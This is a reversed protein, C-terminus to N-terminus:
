KGGGESTDSGEQESTSLGGSWLVWGNGGLMFISKSEPHIAISGPAIRCENLGIIEEWVAPLDEPDYALCVINKAIPWNEEGFARGDAAAKEEALLIAKFPITIVEGPM